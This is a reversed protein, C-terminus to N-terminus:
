TKWSLQLARVLMANVEKQSIPQNQTAFREDRSSRSEKLAALGADTCRAWLDVVLDGEGCFGRELEILGRDSLSAYFKARTRSCRFSIGGVSHALAVLHDSSLIM